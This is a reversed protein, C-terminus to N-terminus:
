TDHSDTDDVGTALAITLDGDFRTHAPRLARALGDHASQAVLHCGMKDLRADTVVVVLTTNAREDDGFVASPFAAVATPARSGALTSTSSTASRMSSRSRLSARATPM